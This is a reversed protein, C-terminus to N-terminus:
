RGYRFMYLDRTDTCSVVVVGVVGTQKRLFAFSLIGLGEGRM